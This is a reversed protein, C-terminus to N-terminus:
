SEAAMEALKSVTNMNRATSVGLDLALKSRGMGDPFHVYVAEAGPEFEENKVGKAATELAPPPDGALFHVAVRNGPTGPFPNSEVLEAMQKATRIFVGVSKGAYRELEGELTSRCRDAPEGSRFVVNGSAIYTRVDEFGIGECMKQLEDMPLKGTGGVNVARLLAVYTTM